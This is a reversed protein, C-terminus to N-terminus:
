NLWLETHSKYISAKVLVFEKGEFLFKTGDASFITLDTFSCYFKAQYGTVFSNKFEMRGVLPVEITESPIYGTLGDDNSQVEHRFLITGKHPYRKQM